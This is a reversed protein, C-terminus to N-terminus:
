REFFSFHDRMVRLSWKKRISFGNLTVEGLAGLPLGLAEVVAAVLQQENQGPVIQMMAPRQTTGNNRVALRVTVRM